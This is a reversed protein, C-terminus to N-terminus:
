RWVENCRWSRKNGETHLVIKAKREMRAKVQPDVEKQSSPSVAAWVLIGFIAFGIAAPVGLLIRLAVIDGTGIRITSV